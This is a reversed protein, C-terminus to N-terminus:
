KKKKPPKISKVKSEVTKVDKEFVSDEIDKGWDLKNEKKLEVVYPDNDFKSWVDKPVENHGPIMRVTIRHGDSVTKLNYQRATTNLVIIM